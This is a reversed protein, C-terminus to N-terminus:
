RSETGAALPADALWARVAGVSRLRWRAATPGTGVKISHGGRAAVAAFAPEDSVDDGIFVPLRGRFPREDLFARVAGGKDIGEPVLEVLRKGGQVVFAHGLRRQEALMTRHAVGAMAPAARYHLALSGGKDELLLKPNRAVFRALNAHADDLLERVVPVHTVRGSADRREAGHQGAAALVHGQFLRDIDRLPRGSVVAVAGDCQARLALIRDRLAPALLAREPTPALESLTGDIDFFYAWESRPPPPSPQM